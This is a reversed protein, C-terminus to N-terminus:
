YLRCLPRTYGPQISMHLVGDFGACSDAIPFYYRQCACPCMGAVAFAPSLLGLCFVVGANNWGSLGSVSTTWVYDNSSRPALVGLTVVICIFFLIHCTGGILELAVLLRRAYFQLLLTLLNFHTGRAVRCRRELGRPTSDPGVHHSHRAM